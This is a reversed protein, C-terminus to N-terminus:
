WTENEVEKLGDIRLNDIRSREEMDRLKERLYAISYFLFINFKRGYSMLKKVMNNNIM